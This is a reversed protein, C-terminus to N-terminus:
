TNVSNTVFAEGTSSIHFTDQYTAWMIVTIPKAAKTRLSINLQIAGETQNHAHFHQCLDPSLDFPILFSGGKFMEPTINSSTNGTLVGSHDFLHRFSRAFLGKEFDPTLPKSPVNQSNVTLYIQNCDFHAFNFPNLAISSNYAESDLLGVVITNPIRGKYVNPFNAYTEDKGIQGAIKISSRVLPYKFFGKKALLRQHDAVISAKVKIKRVFLTLEKIEIFYKKAADAATTMLAFSDEARTFRIRIDVSPIILRDVSFVDHQM